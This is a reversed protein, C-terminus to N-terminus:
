VCATLGIAPVLTLIFAGGFVSVGAQADHLYGGADAVVSDGALVARPNSHPYQYV